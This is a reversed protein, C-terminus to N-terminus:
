NNCLTIFLIILLHLSSSILKFSNRESSSNIFKRAGHLAEQKESQEYKLINDNWKLYLLLPYYFGEHTISLSVACCNPMQLCVASSMQLCNEGVDRSLERQLFSLFNGSSAYSSLVRLCVSFMLASATINPCVQTVSDPDAHNCGPAPGVNWRRKSNSINVKKALMSLLCQLCVSCADSQSICQWGMFIFDPVSVILIDRLSWCVFLMKTQRGPM